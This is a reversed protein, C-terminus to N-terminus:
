SNLNLQLLANRIDKFKTWPLHHHEDKFWVIKVETAHMLNKQAFLANGPPVIDDKKGQMILVRCTINQLDDPTEDVDHKFLLLEANSARMEGPILYRLPTRDLTIRWNEPKEEGPDAAGALTVLNTIPLSPNQAALKIALPGGFSYGILCMPKGNQIGALVQSILVAQAALDIAVGSNSNGFGPRDISIMRYHQQLASDKLYKEFSDWSGPSGHIFVLTPFSDTGTLIYHITRNGTKYYEAKFSFAHKNFDAKAKEDSM